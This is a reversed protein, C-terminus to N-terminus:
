ESHDRLLEDVGDTFVPVIANGEKITHHPQLERDTLFFTAHPTLM